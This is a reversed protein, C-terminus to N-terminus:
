PGWLAMAPRMVAHNADLNMLLEHTGLGIVREVEFHAGLGAELGAVFDLAGQEGMGGALEVLDFLAVGLGGAGIRDAQRDSGFLCRDDMHSIRRAQRRKLRGEIKTAVVGLAKIQM